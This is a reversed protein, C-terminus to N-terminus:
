RQEKRWDCRQEFKNWIFGGTPEIPFKEEQVCMCTCGVYLLAPTCMCVCALLSYNNLIKKKWKM